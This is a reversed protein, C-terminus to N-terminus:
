ACDKSRLGAPRGSLRWTHTQGVAVSELPQSRPVASPPCTRSTMSLHGRAVQARLPGGGNGLPEKFLWGTEGCHHRSEAPILSKEELTHAATLYCRLCISDWTGDLNRRHRFSQHVLSLEPM